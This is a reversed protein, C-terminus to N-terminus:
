PRREILRVLMAEIREMRTDIQRAASSLAQDQREDRMMQQQQLIQLAQENLALRQEVKAFYSALGVALTVTTLLHGIQIERKIHWPERTPQTEAPM